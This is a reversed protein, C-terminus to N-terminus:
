LEYYTECGFEALVDNVNGKRLMECFPGFFEVQTMTVANVWDWGNQHDPERPVITGDFYFNVKSYDAGTGASPVDFVCSTIMSSIMSFINDLEAGNNAQVYQNIGTGGASAIANLEDPSVDSGFGIAFVKVHQSNVLTMTSNGLSAVVDVGQESCTDAGDSIVVLSGSVREEGIRGPHFVIRKLASLLPTDGWPDHNSVWDIITFVNYKGAPINDYPELNCPNLIGAEDPFLDLGFEVHNNRDDTLMKTIATTAETWKNSNGMSSSFDQLLLVAVDPFRLFFDHQACIQQNPGVRTPCGFTANVHTVEGSKIKRCAEGHFEVELKESKTWNWGGQNTLDRPLLADDFYFNVKSPDGAASPSSLLYRCPRISEAIEKLAEALQTGDTAALFTPFTSGGNEAITSLEQEPITDGFGIAITKIGAVDKLDHVIGALVNLKDVDSFSGDGGYCNDFGDSIVVIYNATDKDHLPSPTIMHYKLASVLPTMAFFGPPHDRMWSVIDGKTNAGVDVVPGLTECSLLGNEPFVDLGFWTDANEPDNLLTEVAATAAEWKGNQGMSGSNDILLMVRVGKLDLRLNQESCVQSDGGDQGGDGDAGDPQGPTTDGSCAPLCFLALLGLSGLFIRTLTQM